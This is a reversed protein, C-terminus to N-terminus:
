AFAVKATKLLENKRREAGVTYIATTKENTHGAAKQAINKGYAEDLQDLHSHKLSYFDAQVNLGDNKKVKRKWRRSIQRNSISTNGPCLNKSLLFENQKAAKMLEEWLNLVAKNIVRWEERYERGKKVTIKFRSDSLYVDEKKVKLLESSRCGSHFFIHMYRWFTYSNEKLYKDIKSREAQSTTQRIKKLGKKKKIPHVPNSDLIEINILEEYLNSIHARADNWRNSSWKKKQANEIQSAEDLAEIIQRRTIDRLAFNAFGLKEAALSFYKLSSRVNIKYDNTVTLRNFGFNLSKIFPSHATIENERELIKALFFPNIGKNLNALELEIRKKVFDQRERLTKYHNMGKIVIQKNKNLNDDYFRYSIFWDVSLDASKSEWNAPSITFKGARCNNALQLM